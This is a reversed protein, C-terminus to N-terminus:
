RSPRISKRNVLASQSKQLKEHVTQLQACYVDATITEGRKLLEYHIMGFRGWSGCLLRRHTFTKEQLNKLLNELTLGLILVDDTTGFSGSKMALLSGELCLSRM